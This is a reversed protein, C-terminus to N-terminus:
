KTQRTQSQCGPGPEFKWPAMWEKQFFFLGIPNGFPFLIIDDDDDEGFVDRERERERELQAVLHNTPFMHNCKRLPRTFPIDFTKKSFPNTRSAGISEVEVRMHWLLM